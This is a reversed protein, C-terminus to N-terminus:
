QTHTYVYLFLSQTVPIISGVSRVLWGSQKVTCIVNMNKMMLSLTLLLGYSGLDDETLFLQHSQYQLEKEKKM